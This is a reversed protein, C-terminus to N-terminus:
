LFYDSVFEEISSLRDSATSSYAVLPGRVPGSHEAFAVEPSGTRITQHVWVEPSSDSLTMVFSESALQNRVLAEEVLSPIRSDRIPNKQQQNQMRDGNYGM